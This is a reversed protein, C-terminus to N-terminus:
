VNKDGLNIQVNEKEEEKITFMPISRMHVMKAVINSPFMEVKNNFLRVTANYYKRANAISDEIKYLKNSLDLYNENAKLEPYSEITILLNSLEQNTTIKKTMNLNNYRQKIINELTSSEYDSYEKVINVLNPILDWRQKLYVDMTAFAEDVKNNLKLLINATIIVYIIFLFFVGTLIYVVIM